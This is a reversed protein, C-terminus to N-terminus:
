DLVTKGTIIYTVLFICSFIPQLHTSKSTSSTNVNPPSDGFVTGAGSAPNSTNLLSPPSGYSPVTTGSEPTQPIPTPPTPMPTTTTPTSPPFTMTQPPFTTTPPPFTATPPTPSTTVSSSPSSSPFICSGTSPNSNTIMATGGFDCSAQVPNKQYYSNFAYSAHNPLSNPNYCSGGLQITSCDAGGMGCAYDLATQMATESGGSKAVCWSQGQGAPSNGTAPTAIPVGGSPAPYTTVPNTIPVPSNIPQVPTNIPETNPVPVPTSVPVTEPTGSNPSPTVTVPNTSPVTVITPSSIGPPITILPTTSPNTIPSTPFTTTPPYVSDHQTNQFQIKELLERHSSRFIQEERQNEREEFDKVPFAEVFLEIINKGILHTSNELVRSIKSSFEALEKAKPVFSSKINLVIHMNRFPLASTVFTARKIVLDAFEDGMSLLGDISAEIRVFSRFKHIFNFIRQLDRVHKKNLNGLLSLPLSVSVRVKRELHFMRLNSHISKLTSLLLPLENKGGLQIILNKIKVHPLSTLLHSKLWSISTTKENRLYEIQTKNLYFDVTVGSNSFKDLVRVDAVFVRIQSPNTKDLKLFSITEAASSIGDSKRADCFFGVLTGSSCVILASLLFLFLCKSPGKAM